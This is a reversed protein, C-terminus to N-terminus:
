GGIVDQLVLAIAGSTVIDVLPVTSAMHGAVSPEAELGVQPGAVM